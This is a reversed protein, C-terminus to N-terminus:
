LAVPGILAGRPDLRQQLVMGGDEPSSRWKESSQITCRALLEALDRICPTTPSAAVGVVEGPRAVFVGGWLRRGGDSRRRGGSLALRDAGARAEPKAQVPADRSTSRRRADRVLLRARTSTTSVRAIRSASTQSPTRTALAKSRAGLTNDVARGVRAEGPCLVLPVKPARSARVDDWACSEPGSPLAQEAHFAASSRTETHSINRRSRSRLPVEHDLVPVEPV